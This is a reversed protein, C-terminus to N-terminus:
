FYAEAEEEGKRDLLEEINITSSLKIIHKKLEDWLDIKPLEKNHWIVKVNQSIRGIMEPYALSSM